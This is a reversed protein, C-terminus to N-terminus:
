SGVRGPAASEGFFDLVERAVDKWGGVELGQSIAQADWDPRSLARGLATATAEADDIPALHGNVGERVFHANDGAPTTVVPRGSALAELISNCCGERSTALAFLDAAQLWLAVEASPIRGVFRVPGGAGTASALRRLRAEYAPEAEGGGIIALQATPWTARLRAFAEILVHHRKLEILNGVCVVLPADPPIGLRARAESRDGPRFRQRDVANPIVRFQSAEVGRSVLLDRLSHSVSIVGTAENLARVLQPGTSPDEVVDTELGRVTVFVPLGDRRALRVCGVGDPYGFHADVVDFAAAGGLGPLARRVSRELWTADLSKLLGPLYFMPAHEIRRGAHEHGPEGAWGPLPRLVPFYPVPQLITVPTLAAMAALREFVFGGAAPSGPDPLYRCVSLVRV